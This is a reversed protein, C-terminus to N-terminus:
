CKVLQIKINKHMRWMKFANQIERHCMSKLISLTPDAKGVILWKLSISPTPSHNYKEKRLKFAIRTEGLSFAPWEPLGLHEYIAYSYFGSSGRLM